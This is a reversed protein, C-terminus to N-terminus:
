GLRDLSSAFTFLPKSTQAQRAITCQLGRQDGAGVLPTVAHLDIDFRDGVFGEIAGFELVIADCSGSIATVTTTVAFGYSAGCNKPDVGPSCLSIAASGTAVLTHGDASFDAIYLAGSVPGTTGTVLDYFEGQVGVGSDARAAAPAVAGALAM